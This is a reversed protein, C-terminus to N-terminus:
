KNWKRYLFYGPILCLTKLLKYDKDKKIIEIFGLGAFFGYSDYLLGNKIRDKAHNKKDMCIQAHLMGGLPNNTRLKRGAKTLGDNLYEGLYIIKNIYVCKHTKGVRNWLVGEAMFREGEYVPFPYKKYLDTRIVECFDNGLICERKYTLINVPVYEDKVYAFPTEKSTGRLFIVVGINEDDGFKEWGAFVQEVADETLQDDSDLILVYDGKVYDHSTNLATHKGGNEKKVYVINFDTKDELFTRVIQETNDTSGDDVIIWEFDRDTQLQLSKYCNKLREARNYTPTVISLLKQNNSM